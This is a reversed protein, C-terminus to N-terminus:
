ERAGMRTKRQRLCDFRRRKRCTKMWRRFESPLGETELDIDADELGVFCINAKDLGPPLKYPAPNNAVDILNSLGQKAVAVVDAQAGKFVTEKLQLFGAIGGFRDKIQPLLKSVMKEVVLSMPSLEDTMENRLVGFGDAARAIRSTPDEPKLPKREVVELVRHKRYSSWLSINEKWGYQACTPDLAMEVGCPLKVVSIEHLNLSNLGDLSLDDLDLGRRTPRVPREINKSGFAVRTIEACSPRILAEFLPRMTHMVANCQVFMMAAMSVEPSFALEHPFRVFKGAPATSDSKEIDVEMVVVGDKEVIKKVPALNLSTITLFHEFIEQFVSVGHRLQRLQRCLPKHQKWDKAQCDQGCYSAACKKLAANEPLFEYRGSPDDKLGKAWWRLFRLQRAKGSQDDDSIDSSLALVALRVYIEFGPVAHQTKQLSHLAEKVHKLIYDFDADASQQSKSQRVLEDCAVIVKQTVDAGSSKQLVERPSPLNKIFEEVPDAAQNDAAPKSSGNAPSERQRHPPIAM